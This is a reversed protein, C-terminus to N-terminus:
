SYTSASVASATQGNGPVGVPAAARDANERIAAAMEGWRTRPLDHGMDNFMLLRAGPVANLTAVGGSPTVLPDRTGHIVLTPVRLRRLGPTRDPSAMIAALQRASGEPRYSRSISAEALARFETDDFTPGSILRFFAVADDVAAEITVRKRKLFAKVVHPRPTGVFRAGTTSMISCLSLVRDPHDIAVQQAIMGGMSMGAIHAKDIGLADLLGVLDAAMDPVTYSARTRRGVAAQMIEWKTPVPADIETSLGADRNDFRIVRFGQGVLADVLGQPWDILQGTLGIVLVLPEGSGTDEYEITIGNAEVRAM